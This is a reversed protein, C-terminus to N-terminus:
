DVIRIAGKPCVLAAKAVRARSEEPPSDRLVTVLDDEEGVVGEIPFAAVGAEGAADFGIVEVEGHGFIVIFVM